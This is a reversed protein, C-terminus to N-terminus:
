CTPHLLVADPAGGADHRTVYVLLAASQIRKLISTLASM